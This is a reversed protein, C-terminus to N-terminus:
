FVNNYMMSQDDICEIKEQYSADIHKMQKPDIGVFTVKKLYQNDNISKM